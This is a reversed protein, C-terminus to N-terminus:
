TTLRPRRCDTRRRSRRGWAVLALGIAAWGAELGGSRVGTRCQCGSKGNDTSFGDSGNGMSADVILHPAMPASSSTATPIPDTSTSTSTSTPTPEVGGTGGTSVPPMAADREPTSDPPKGADPEPEIQCNVVAAHACANSG